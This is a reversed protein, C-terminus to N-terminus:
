CVHYAITIREFDSDLSESPGSDDGKSCLIHPALNQGKLELYLTLGNMIGSAGAIHSKLRVGSLRSISPKTRKMASSLPNQAIMLGMSASSRYIKQM